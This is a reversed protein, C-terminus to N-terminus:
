VLVKKRVRPDVKMTYGHTNKVAHNFREYVTESSDEVADVISKTEIEIRRAKGVEM